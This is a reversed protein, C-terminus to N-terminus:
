IESISYDPLIGISILGDPKDRVSVRELVKQSIVFISEARKILISLMEICEDSYISEPCIVLINIYTNTLLIRQHAWIGEVVFEREDMKNYGGSLQRRIKKIMPHSAGAHHIKYRYRNLMINLEDAMM